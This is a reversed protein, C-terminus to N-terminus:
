GNPKRGYKGFLEDLSRGPAASPTTSPAPASTPAPASAPVPAESSIGSYEPIQSMAQALSAGSAMLQKRKLGRAIIEKYEKAAEIAAKKGILPNQLRTQAITAKKGEIETIQGGGRLSQYATMFAGGLIQDRIAAADAQGETLPHEGTTRGALPGYISGLSPHKMFRDLLALQENATAEAQPLGAAAQGQAEGLGKGIAKGREVEGEGAGQAAPTTLPMPAGAPTAPMRTPVGNVDQYQAARKVTLFMEQKAPPLSRFFLWENVSMPIGKFMKVGDVVTEGAAGTKGLDTLAARAVAPNATKQRLEMLKYQLNQLDPSTASQEDGYGSLAVDAGLLDSLHQQQWKRQNEMNARIQDAVNAIGADRTAAPRFVSTGLALYDEGKPYQMQQIQERARILLERKRNAEAQKQKMLSSGGEDVQKGAGLYQNLIQRSFQKSEPSSPSAAEIVSLRDDSSPDYQQGLSTEDDDLPDLVPDAM